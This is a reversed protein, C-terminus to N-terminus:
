PSGANAPGDILLQKMEAVTDARASDKILNHYEGPDSDHDYLEASGDPWQTYRWRETRVSRGLGEPRTVVTFAAQKWPRDPDKLLRVLSSGELNAPGQFGCLDCLSPYLDVFEVLRQCAAGAKHGPAWIILPARCAQEFLTAKLWLGGHDGEHWGHDGLFVVITNDWMKEQDLWALLKGVQADMFSICAYYARRFQRTKEADMQGRLNHGSYSLRLLESKDAPEAPPDMKELPYLDFYKKPAIWPDHPRRLGVGVFFPQRRGRSENMLRISQAVTQGDAQDEDTGEAALWRCFDTRTEVLRAGEGKEGAETAKPTLAVDWMSPDDLGDHTIKGIRAVFYGNQKFLQPLTIADPLKKRFYTNNDLVQTTDPRLGTLFSTRSPNCVPYQVYARDFRVAHAALRDVNPTQVLANGYCHLSTNLDDITIFIVNPRHAAQAKGIAPALLVILIALYRSAMDNPWVM